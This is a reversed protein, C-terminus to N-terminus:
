VGVIGCAVRRLVSSFLYCLCLRSQHSSKGESARTDGGVSFLSSVPLDINPSLISKGLILVDLTKEMAQTPAVLIWFMHARVHHDAFMLKLTLTFCKSVLNVTGINVVLCNQAEHSNVMM